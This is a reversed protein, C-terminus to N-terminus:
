RNPKDGTKRRSRTLVLGALAMGALGLSAPEPVEGLTPEADNRGYLLVRGVSQASIAWQGALTMDALEFVVWDPDSRSGGTQFALAIHDYAAFAAAAATFSGSTGGLSGSLWNMGVVDAALSGSDLVTWGEQTARFADIGDAGLDGRGTAVCSAGGVSTSITISRPTAACQSSSTTITAQAAGVSLMGLAATVTAAFVATTKSKYRM